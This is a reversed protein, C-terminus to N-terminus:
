NSKVKDDKLNPIKVAIMSAAQAPYAQFSHFEGPEVLLIDGRHLIYNEGAVTAKMDGLAVFVEQLNEHAHPRTTAGVGLEIMIVGATNSPEKFVIDGVYSAIYGERSASEAKDLQYFEVM